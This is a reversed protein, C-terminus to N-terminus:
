VEPNRLYESTIAEHPHQENWKSVGEDDCPYIKHNYCAYILKTDWTRTQQEHTFLSSLAAIQLSQVIVAGVLLLFLIIASISIIRLKHKKM